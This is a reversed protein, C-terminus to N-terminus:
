NRKKNNIYKYINPYKEKKNIIFNKADENFKKKLKSITTTNEIFFINALEKNSKYGNMFMNKFRFDISINKGINCNYYHDSLFSFFHQIELSLDINSNSELIEILEYLLGKKTGM